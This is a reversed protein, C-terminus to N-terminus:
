DLNKVVEFAPSIINTYGSWTGLGALYVQVGWKGIIDPDKANFFGSTVAWQLKGDSGTNTFTGAKTFKQGKPGVLIFNKTTANTIDVATLAGTTDNREKVTVRVISGTDGSSFVPLYSAM